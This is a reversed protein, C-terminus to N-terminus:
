EIKLFVGQIESQAQNKKQPHPHTTNFFITQICLKHQSIKSGYGNYRLVVFVFFRGRVLKMRFFEINMKKKKSRTNM